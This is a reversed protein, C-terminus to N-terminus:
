SEAPLYTRIVGLAYDWVTRENEPSYYKKSPKEEGKPGFYKGSVGELEPSTAAYISSSAAKDMSIM